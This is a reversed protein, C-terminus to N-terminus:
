VKATSFVTRAVFVLTTIAVILLTAAAWARDPAGPIPSTAQQYIYTGLSEQPGRLPNQNISDTSGATLLVPATEGAVRAIGLSAATVIGSRATSIVVRLLVTGPPIGLALGAETIETPVSQLANQTGIAITPVALLVLAVAAAAGSPGAAAGVVWLSYVVLGAVVSPVGALLGIAATVFRTTVRAAGTRRPCAVFIGTGVGIPVALLGTILLQEASGLIAHAGGGVPRLQSTGRMTHTLFVGTVHPLGRYLTYGLLLAFTITVTGSGLRILTRMTTDVARHHDLAIWAASHEALVYAIVAVLVTAM